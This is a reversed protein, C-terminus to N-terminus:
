PRSGDPGAAGVCAGEVYGEAREVSWGKANALVRSKEKTLVKMDGGLKRDAPVFESLLGYAIHQKGAAANRLARREWTGKDRM